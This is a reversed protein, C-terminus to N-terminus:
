GDCTIYRHIMGEIEKWPKRLASPDLGKGKKDFEEGLEVFSEV